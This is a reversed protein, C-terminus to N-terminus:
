SNAIEFELEVQKVSNWQETTLYGSWHNGDCLEISAYHTQDPPPRDVPHLHLWHEISAVQEYVFTKPEKREIMRKKTM